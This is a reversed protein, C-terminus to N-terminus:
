LFQHFFALNGHATNVIGYPADQAQLEAEAKKVSGVGNLTIIRFKGRCLGCDNRQRGGFFGHHQQLVLCVDQRQGFPFLNQYGPGIGMGHAPQVSAPAIGPLAAAYVPKCRMEIGNQLSKFIFEALFVNDVFRTDGIVFHSKPCLFM